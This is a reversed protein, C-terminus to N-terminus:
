EVVEVEYASFRGLIEHAVFLVNDGAEPITDIIMSQHFFFDVGDKKIFGYKKERDYWLVVGKEKENESM